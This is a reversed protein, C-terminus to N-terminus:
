GRKEALTKGGHESRLGVVVRGNPSKVRFELFEHYNVLITNKRAENVCIIWEMLTGM